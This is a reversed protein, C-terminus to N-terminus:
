PKVPVRDGRENLTLKEGSAFKFVVEGASNLGLINVKKTVVIDTTKIKLYEYGSEGKIDGIGRRVLFELDGNPKVFFYKGDAGKFITNKGLVGIVNYEVSVKAFNLTITGAGDKPPPRTGGISPPGATTQAEALNPMMMMPIVFLATASLRKKM